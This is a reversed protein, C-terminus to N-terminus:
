VASCNEIQATWSKLLDVSQFASNPYARFGIKAATFSWFVVANMISGLELACPFCGICWGVPRKEGSGQWATGGECGNIPQRDREVEGDQKATNKIM